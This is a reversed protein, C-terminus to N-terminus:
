LYESIFESVLDHAEEITTASIIAKLTDLSATYKEHVSQYESPEIM